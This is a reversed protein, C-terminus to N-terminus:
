AETVAALLTGVSENELDDVIAAVGDADIDSEALCEDFKERLRAEPVPNLPSGPADVVSREHVTGDDTEVTVRGGYRGLDAVADADYDAAMRSLAAETATEAVYDDAFVALGPDGSRLTAALCYEISFKAQLGDAPRSHILVDEAGPHMVAQVSSVNELSLGEDRRLQRLAEMAGHTIHASPYVKLAVDDVGDFGDRDLASPDYADGAMTGGYSADGDLIDTDATAGERALLAARVGGSAAFGAHLPKTTTGFNRRLGGASSAAIGLAHRLAETDLDFVVGAAAAAGLPGVAATSHFGRDYQEPFVSDGVRFLVEVGAAYARLLRDGGADVLEGASLAAPVVVTTPHLPFSAFTDDYDVAHGLTGNVFAAREHSAARGDLTTADGAALDADGYRQLTDSADTTRGYVATGLYDRIALKSRDVTETPPDDFSDVFAALDATVTM